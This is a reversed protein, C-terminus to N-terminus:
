SPADILANVRGAARTTATSTNAAQPPPSGRGEGDEPASAVPAEAAVSASVSVSTASAKAIDGASAVVVRGGAVVAGADVVVDVTHISWSSTVVSEEGERISNVAMVAPSEYEHPIRVSLM